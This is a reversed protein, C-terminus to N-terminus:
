EIVAKDSDLKNDLVDGSKVKIADDIKLNVKIKYLEEMFNIKKTTEIFLNYDFDKNVIEKCSRYVTKTQEYPLSRLAIASAFLIVTLVLEFIIRNVWKGLLKNEEVGKNLNSSGNYGYYARANHGDMGKYSNNNNYNNIGTYTGMPKGIKKDEAENYINSEEYNYNAKPYIDESSDVGLIGAKERESKDEQLKVNIKEKANLYYKRYEDDYNGM